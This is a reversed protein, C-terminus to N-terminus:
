ATSPLFMCVAMGFAKGLPMLEDMLRETNDADRYKSGFRRTLENKFAM